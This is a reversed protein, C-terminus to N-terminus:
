INKKNNHEIPLARYSSFYVRVVVVVINPYHPLIFSSLDNTLVKDNQINEGELNADFKAYYVHM